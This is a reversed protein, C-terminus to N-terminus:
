AKFQVVGRKGNVRWLTDEIQLQEALGEPLGVVTDSKMTRLMLLPAPFYAAVAAFPTTVPWLLDGSMRRYNLDGKSIVLRAGAFTQRLYEPMASLPYASNWFFDPRLRLRGAEFAKGLREALAPIGSSALRQRMSHWLFHVDPLIADSVFQPHMKIHFTVSGYDLLMDTLAMDIALETGTNDAIIHIDGGRALLHKVVAEGDDVLLDHHSGVSGHAMVAALSLDIRNAWIDLHLLSYLREEPELERLSLAREVQTWLAPSALEEAKQPTFLDRGTEWWRTLQMLYRYFYIEAFFWDTNLWTHGRHQEYIAYWGAADPAPLELPPIPQDASIDVALQELAQRILSPYDSNTRIIDRITAPVRVKMTNHAFTNSADTRVPAPM